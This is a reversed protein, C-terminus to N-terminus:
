ILETIERLEMTTVIFKYLVTKLSFSFSFPKYVIKKVFHFFRFIRVGSKKENDERTLKSIM